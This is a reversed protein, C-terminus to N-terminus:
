ASSDFKMKGFPTLLAADQVFYWRWQGKELKWTSTAPAEFVQAGIGPAMLQTKVTIHVVAKRGNDTFDINGVKVDQFSPKGSNYFYDRSDDAVLEEAQRFNKKLELQYFQQARARLAKEAAANAPSTTQAVATMAIAPFLLRRDM